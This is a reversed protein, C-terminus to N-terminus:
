NDVKIFDYIDFRIGNQKAIWALNILQKQPISGRRRWKEIADVSINIGNAALLRSTKMLGGFHDVVKYCDLTCSM